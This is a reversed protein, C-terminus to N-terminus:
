VKFLQILLPQLLQCVLKSEPLKPLLFTVERDQNGASFHPSLMTAFGQNGFEQDQRDGQKCMCAYACQCVEECSQLNGKWVSVYVYSNPCVEPMKQM